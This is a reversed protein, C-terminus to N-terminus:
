KGAEESNTAKLKVTSAPGIKMQGDTVVMEGEEVGSSIAALGDVELAVKVARSEVSQDSKVVWLYQGTQGVQLADSPVVLAGTLTRLLLSVEVFQGPWLLDNQNDFSAKLLISGTDPSVANDIFTLTGALPTSEVGKSRVLVPIPNAANAQRIASLYNESISFRALVPRTKQISVLPTDLNEAKILNGPKILLTGTKGDIPAQIRTYSLELRATELSAEAAQVAAGGSEFAASSQDFQERTVYEKQVLAQYRKFTSEANKLEAKAKSLNAEAERARAEFPRPDITFLLDGQKVSQGEAFHAASLTGAVRAVVNVSESAEISGVAKIYHPLDKRLVKEATVVIPAQGSKKEPGGSCAALTLCGICTALQIAFRKM